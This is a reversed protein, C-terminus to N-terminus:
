LSSFTAGVLGRHDIPNAGWFHRVKYTIRDNTFMAGVLETSQDQAFIEPEERGNLFGVEIMPIETPGAALVWINKPAQTDGGANGRDAATEWYPIILLEFMGRHINVEHSGAGVKTESNLLALGMARNTPAVVLTKPSSMIFSHAVAGSYPASASVAAQQIQFRMFADSLNADNLAVIASLISHTDTVINGPSRAAAVDFLRDAGGSTLYTSEAPNDILFDFVTIYITGAAARGLKQPLARFKGIDDNIIMELTLSAQGHAKVPQYIAEEEPLAAGTLDAYTIDQNSAGVGSERKLLYFEGLRERKQERLDSTPAVTAIKRWDQLM